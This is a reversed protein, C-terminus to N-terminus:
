LTTVVGAFKLLDTMAFTGPTAAPLLPTWEPDQRLYSHRDGQLVGIFVETVIRGGVPGLRRGAAMKEAERLVYFWLPTRTDLRHPKLDALDERPLPRIRM